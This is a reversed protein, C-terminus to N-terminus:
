ATRWQHILIDLGAIRGTPFSFLLLLALAEMFTKNVYLESGEATSVIFGQYALPPAALYFLMLLLFGGLAAAQSWLGLMLLIGLVMLGWKTVGDTLMLLNPSAAIEHFWSAFPGASAELYGLSTWTADYLKAFGQYFLHWGICFRLLVLLFQQWSTLSVPRSSM